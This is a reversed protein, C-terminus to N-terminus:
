LHVQGAIIYVANGLSLYFWDAGLGGLFLSLLFATLKDKSSEGSRVSRISRAVRVYKWKLNM